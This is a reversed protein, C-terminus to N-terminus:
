FIGNIVTYTIHFGNDTLSGDSHFNVLAYPGSTTIPPPNATSCFKGLSHDTSVLGDRVKLLINLM